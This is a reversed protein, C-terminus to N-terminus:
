GPEDDSYICFSAKQTKNIFGNDLNPKEDECPQNEIVEVKFAIRKLDLYKIDCYTQIYKELDNERKRKNCLFDTNQNQKKVPKM